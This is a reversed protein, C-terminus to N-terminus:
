LGDIEEITLNELAEADIKDVKKVVLELQNPITEYFKNTTNDYSVVSDKESIILQAPLESQENYFFPNAMVTGNIEFITWMNGSETVYYTTYMPHTDNSDRSVEIPNEYKGSISYEYTIPFQDFGRKKMNEKISKESSVTDSDTANIESIVNSNNRYYEDADKTPVEYDEYSGEKITETEIEIEVTTEEVKAITMTRKEKIGLMDKIDQKKIIDFKICLLIIGSVVIIVIIIFLLLKLLFRRIKNETFLGSKKAKKREIKERKKNSKAQKKKEKRSLRIKAKENESNIQMDKQLIRNNADCNPCLGTAEDLKFGCKGCFKAM